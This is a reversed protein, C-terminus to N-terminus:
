MTVITTPDVVSLIVKENDGDGDGDQDLFNAKPLLPAEREILQPSSPDDEEFVYDFNIPDCM